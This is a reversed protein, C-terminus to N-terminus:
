RVYPMIRYASSWMELILLRWALNRFISIARPFGYGARNNLFYDEMASRLGLTETWGGELVVGKAFSHFAPQEDLWSVAM